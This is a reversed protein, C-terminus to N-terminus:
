DEEKKNRWQVMLTGVSVLVLATVITETSSVSEEQLFITSFLVGFIPTLFGFVAVRSVENYKL